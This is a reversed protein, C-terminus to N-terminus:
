DGFKYWDADCLPKYGIAQYIHNSTPNALDTYLFCYKRGGDLLMQSMAAVNASAYGKGRHEPPTYVAMVAMGHPTPRSHGAMSVPQGDEWLYLGQTESDLFREITRAVLSTDTEALAEENFEAFWRHLLDKEEWTAKRMHGPVGEVPNVKELQFLREAMALRYSQGSLRQWEEAFTKGSPVLAVVGPLAKYESYVDSAILPIAEATPMHSLILNNPPGMFAAAVIDGDQEVCAMYPEREVRDPYHMMHTCIGLILNHEAERELLFPEVSRYYEEISSFRRLEM